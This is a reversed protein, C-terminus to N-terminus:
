RGLKWRYDELWKYKKLADKTDMMIIQNKFMENIKDYITTQNMHMFSGSRENEAEVIGTTYITKLLEHPLEKLSKIKSDQVKSM